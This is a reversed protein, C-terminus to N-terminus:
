AHVYHETGQTAIERNRQKDSQREQVQKHYKKRKKVKKKKRKKIKEWTLLQSLKGWWHSTIRSLTNYVKKRKQRKVKFPSPPQLICYQEIVIEDYQSRSPSSKETQKINYFHQILKHKYTATILFRFFLSAWLM